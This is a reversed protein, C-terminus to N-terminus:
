RVLVPFENDTGPKCFRVEKYSNNCVEAIVIGHSLVKDQRSKAYKGTKHHVTIKDYSIGYRKEAWDPQIQLLAQSTVSTIEHGKSGTQVMLFVMFLLSLVAITKTLFSGERTLEKNLSPAVRMLLLPVSVLFLFTGSVYVLTQPFFLGADLEYVNPFADIAYTNLPLYKIREFAILLIALGVVFIGLTVLFFKWTAKKEEETPVTFAPADSDPLKLRPENKGALHRGKGKPKGDIQEFNSDAM